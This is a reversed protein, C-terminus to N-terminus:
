SLSSVPGREGGPLPLPFASSLKNLFAAPGPIGSHFPGQSLPCKVQRGAELAQFKLDM